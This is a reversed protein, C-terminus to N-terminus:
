RSPVLKLALTVRASEGTESSSAREFAVPRAAPIAPRTYERREVGLGLAREGVIRRDRMAQPGVALGAHDRRVFTRWTIADPSM